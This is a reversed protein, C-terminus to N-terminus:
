FGLQQVEPIGRRALACARRRVTRLRSDPLDRLPLNGALDVPNTGRLRTRFGNRSSARTRGSALSWALTQRGLPELLTSHAKYSGKGGARARPGFGPGLGLEPGLGHFLQPQNPAPKHGLPCGCLGLDVGFSGGVPGRVVEFQLWMITAVDMFRRRDLKALWSFTSHWFTHQRHPGKM